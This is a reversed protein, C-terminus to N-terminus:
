HIRLLYVLSTNIPAEHPESSVGAGEPVLWIIEIEHPFKHFILYIKFVFGM